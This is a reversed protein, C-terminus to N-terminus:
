VNDSSRWGVATSPLVIVKAGDRWSAILAENVAEAAETVCKRFHKSGAGDYSMSLLDHLCREGKLLIIEALPPIPDDKKLGALANIETQLARRMYNPLEALVERQFYDRLGNVRAYFHGVADADPSRRIHEIEQM